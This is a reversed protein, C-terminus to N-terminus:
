SNQQVIRQFVRRRAAANGYVHLPPISAHAERHAICALADGGRSQWVNEFAKVSGILRTSAFAGPQTKRQGLEDRPGVAGLYLDLALRALSRAEPDRQSALRAVRQLYVKSPM